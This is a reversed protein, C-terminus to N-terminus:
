RVVSLWVSHTAPKQGVQEWSIWQARARGVPDQPDYFPNGDVFADEIAEYQALMRESRQANFKSSWKRGEDHGFMRGLLRADLCCTDNGCLALIFSLKALGIGTPLDTELYLHRRLERDRLGRLMADRVAPAWSGATEYMESRQQELGLSVICDEIEALTPMGQRGRREYMRTICAFAREAQDIGVMITLGSFVTSLRITEITPVEARHKLLQPRVETYGTITPVDGFLPLVEPAFKTGQPQVQVIPKYPRKTPRDVVSAPMDATAESAKTALEEVRVFELWDSPNCLLTDSGTPYNNTIHWGDAGANCMAEALAYQDEHEDYYDKLNQWDAGSDVMALKPARTVRFVLVRPRSEGMRNAFWEAVDRSNSVWVPEGRDLDEFDDEASTGHYVLSGVKLPSRIRPKRGSEEEAKGQGLKLVGNSSLSGYITGDDAIMVLSPRTSGDRMVERERPSIMIAGEVTGRPYTKARVRDGPRIPDGKRDNMPAYVVEKKVFLAYIPIWGGTDGPVGEKRAWYHSTLAVGGGSVLDKQEGIRVLTASRPDSAWAYVLAGRVLEEPKAHVFMPGTERAPEEAMKAGGLQASLMKEFDSPRRRIGQTQSEVLCAGDRMLSTAMMIAREGDDKEVMMQVDYPQPRYPGDKYPEFDHVFGLVSVPKGEWTADFPFTRAKLRDIGARFAAKRRDKEEQPLDEYYPRDDAPGAGEGAGGQGMAAAKAKELNTGDYLTRNAGGTKYSDVYEVTTYHVVYKRYGKDGHRSRRWGEASGWGGGEWVELDKVPVATETFYEGWGRDDTDHKADRPWPFRVVIGDGAYARAAVLSDDTFFIRPTEYRYSPDFRDTEALRLGETLVSPAASRPVGHYAWKCRRSEEAGGRREMEDVGEGIWEAAGVTEAALMGPLALQESINLVTDGDVVRAKPRAPPSSSGIDFVKYVREGDEDVFGINGAHVDIAYVGHGRLEALADAVGHAMDAEEDRDQNRLEDGSVRLVRELERSAKRLRERQRAHSLRALDDPYTKTSSKFDKVIDSLEDAGAVDGDDITRVRQLIVVGVPYQKRVSQGNIKAIETKARVGRVFWAGDIEAVHKLHHGSLVRGAQVESPDSTLKVVHDEDLVAATGFSGAGLIGGVGSLGLGELVAVLKPVRADSRFEYPSGDGEVNALFTAAFEDLSVTPAQTRRARRRFFPVTASAEHAGQDKVIISMLRLRLENRSSAEYRPPCEKDYVLQWHLDSTPPENDNREATWKSSVGNIIARYNGDGESKWRIGAVNAERANRLGAPFCSHDPEEAGIAARGAATLRYKTASKGYADTVKYGEILGNKKLRGITTSGFDWPSMAGGLAAHLARSEADALDGAARTAEAAMGMAAENAVLDVGFYVAAPDTDVLGEVAEVAVPVVRQRVLDYGALEGGDSGLVVPVVDDGVRVLVVPVSM